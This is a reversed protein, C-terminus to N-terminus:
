LGNDYFIFDEYILAQHKGLALVSWILDGTRDPDSDKDVKVINDKDKNPTLPLLEDPDAENGIVVTVFRVKAEEYETAIDVIDFGSNVTKHDIMVVVIKRSDPRAGGEPLFFLKKTEKLANVVDAQGTPTQAKKITSILSAQTVKGFTLVVKANKGFVVMAYLHKKIGHETIISEITSTILKFNEDATVATASVVFAIDLRPFRSTAPFFLYVFTFRSQHGTCFSAM